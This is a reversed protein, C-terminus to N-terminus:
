CLLLRSLVNLPMLARIVKHFPWPEMEVEYLKKKREEVYGHINCCRYKSEPVFFFLYLAYKFIISLYNEDYRLLFM